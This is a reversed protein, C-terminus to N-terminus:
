ESSLNSAPMEEAVKKGEVQCTFFFSVDDGACRQMVLDPVTSASSHHGWKGLDEESPCGEQFM